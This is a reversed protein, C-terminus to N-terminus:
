FLFLEPMRFTFQPNVDSGHRSYAPAENQFHNEIETEALSFFVSM